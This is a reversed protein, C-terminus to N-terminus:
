TTGIEGSGGSDGMSNGEISPTEKSFLIRNVRNTDVRRKRDKKRIMVM